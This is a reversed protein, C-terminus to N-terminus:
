CSCWRKLFVFSASLPICAHTGDGVFAAGARAYAAGTVGLEQAADAAVDGDVVDVVSSM